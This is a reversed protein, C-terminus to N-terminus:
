CKFVIDGNKRTTYIQNVYPYYNDYADYPKRSGSSIVLYEPSATKIFDNSYGSKQGHHSALLIDLEPIEWRDTIEDWNKTENDGPIIMKFNGYRIFLVLSLNNIDSNSSTSYQIGEKTPNLITIFVDGVRKKDGSYVAVGKEGLIEYYKSFESRDSESRYEEPFYELDTFWVEGIEFNNDLETIGRFHDIHPHTIVLYDIGSINLEKLYEVVNTSNYNSYVDILMDEGNPLQILTCHGDGVDLFHVMMNEKDRLLYVLGALGVVYPAAKKAIDIITSVPDPKEEFNNLIEGGGGAGRRM